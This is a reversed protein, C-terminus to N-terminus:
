LSSTERKALAQLFSKEAGSLIGGMWLGRVLLFSTQILADSSLRMCPLPPPHLMMHGVSTPHPVPPSTPSSTKFTTRKDKCLAGSSTKNRTQDIDREQQRRRQWWGRVVAGLTSLYKSELM